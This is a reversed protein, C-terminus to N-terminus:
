AINLYRRNIYDFLYSLESASLIRKFIMFSKAAGNYFNTSGTSTFLNQFRKGNFAITPTVSFVQTGDFYGKLNTGDTQTIALIHVGSTATGLTQRDPTNYFEFTNAVFGYIFAPANGTSSGACLYASSTTSPHAVAVLTTTTNYNVMQTAAYYQSGGSSAFLSPSGGDNLLYTPQASGTANTFNNNDVRDHWTPVSANNAPVSASTTPVYSDLWFAAGLELPVPTGDRSSSYLNRAIRSNIFNFKRIPM